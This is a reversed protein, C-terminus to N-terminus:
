ILIFPVQKLIDYNENVLVPLVMNIILAINNYELATIIITFYNDMIKPLKTYEYFRSGIDFDVLICNNEIGFLATNNIVVINTTMFYTVITAIITQIFIRNNWLKKFKM